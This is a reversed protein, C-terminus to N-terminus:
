PPGDRRPQATLPLLLPDVQDPRLHIVLEGLFHTVLAPSLATRLLAAHEGDAVHLTIWPGRRPVVHVSVIESWEVRVVRLSLRRLHLGWADVAVVRVAWCAYGHFLLSAALPSLLISATRAHRAPLSVHIVLALALGVLMMGCAHVSARRPWPRGAQPTGMWILMQGAGAAMLAVLQGAAGGTM